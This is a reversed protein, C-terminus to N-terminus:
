LNNSDKYNYVILSNKGDVIFSWKLRRVSILTPVLNCSYDRTIDAPRGVYLLWFQVQLTLKNILSTYVSCKLGLASGSLGATWVSLILLAKVPFSVLRFSLHLTLSNLILYYYNLKTNPLIRRQSNSNDMKFKTVAKSNTRSIASM